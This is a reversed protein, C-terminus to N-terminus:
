NDEYQNLYRQVFEKGFLQYEEEFDSGESRMTFFVDIAHSKSKPHIFVVGRAQWINGEQDPETLAYEIYELGDESKLIDIKNLGDAFGKKYHDLLKKTTSTRSPLRQIVATVAEANNTQRPRRYFVGDDREVRVWEDGLPPESPLDKALAPTQFMPEWNQAWDAKDTLTCGALIIAALVFVTGTISHWINKM